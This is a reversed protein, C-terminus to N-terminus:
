LLHLGTENKLLTNPLDKRLLTGKFSLVVHLHYQGEVLNILDIGQHKLTAFSSKQYKGQNERFIYNLHDQHVLGLRYSYTNDSNSVLLYYNADGWNEVELGLVSFNGQIFLRNNKLVLESLSFYEREEKYDVILQRKSLYVQKETNSWIRYETNKSIYKIDLYDVALMKSRTFPITNTRIKAYVEYTGDEIEELDIGIQKFNAFGAAQYDYFVEEFFRVSFMKNLTTGLPYEYSNVLNKLFLKKQYIGYSSISIGKFFAVGELFLKDDVMKCTDLYSVPVVEDVDPARDKNGIEIYGFKPTIGEVISVILSIILPVSYPTIRNHQYALLSSVMIINTNEYHKLKDLLPKQHLLYFEDDESMFIYINKHLSSDSEIANYVLNNYSSVEKNGVIFQALHSKDENLRDGIRTTPALCVVNKYNYKFTFYLSAFGGKSGGLLICKEKTLQHEKLINEILANVADAFCFEGQKGLYYCEKGEYSDKVWIVNCKFAQGVNAFSYREAFGTFIVVLHKKDSTAKKYLYTVEVEKHKYKYEIM